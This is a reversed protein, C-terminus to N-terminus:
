LILHLVFLLILGPLGLFGVIVATVLNLSFLVGTFPTLLNVLILCVFGCATNILIRWLARIPLSIVKLLILVLVAILIIKFLM